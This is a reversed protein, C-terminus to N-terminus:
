PLLWDVNESTLPVSTDIGFYDGLLQGEVWLTLSAIGEQATVSRFLCSLTLAPNVSEDPILLEDSLDVACVDGNVTIKLLRTGEPFIPRLGPANPGTILEEVIYNLYWDATYTERVVLTRTEPATRTGETDSFYLTVNQETDSIVLTDLIYDEARLTQEEGGGIFSVAGIGDLKTLTLVVCARALTLPLGTMVPAEESLTITVTSNQLVADEMTVGPPFPSREIEFLERLAFEWLVGGEPCILTNELLPSRDEAGGLTYVTVPVGPEAQEPACGAFLTLLFLATVSVRAKSM